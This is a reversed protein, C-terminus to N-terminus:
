SVARCRFSDARAGPDRAPLRIARILTIPIGLAAVLRGQLIRPPGVGIVHRMLLGLNFRSTHILLRKRINAHGRLYM